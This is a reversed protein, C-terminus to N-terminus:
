PRWVDTRRGLSSRARWLQFRFALWAIVGAILAVPVLFLALWLAFAALALGGAIVAIVAAWFFIRTLLPPRQPSRFSGDVRMELEPPFRESM